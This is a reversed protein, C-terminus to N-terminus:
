AANPSSNGDITIGRSYSVGSYHNSIPSFHRHFSQHFTSLHPSSSNNSIIIKSLDAHTYYVHIPTASHDELFRTAYEVQKQYLYDMASNTDCKLYVGKQPLDLEDIKNRPISQIQEDGDLNLVVQTVSPPILFISAIDCTRNILSHLASLECTAIIWKLEYRMESCLCIYIKKHIDHCTFLIPENEFELFIHDLFLSGIHDLNKFYAENM